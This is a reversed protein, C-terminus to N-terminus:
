EIVANALTLPIGSTVVAAKCAFCPLDELLVSTADSPILHASRCLDAVQYGRWARSTVAAIKELALQV